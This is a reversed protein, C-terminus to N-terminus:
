FMVAGVNFPTDATVRCLGPEDDCWSNRFRVCSGASSRGPAPNGSRGDGSRGSSTLM